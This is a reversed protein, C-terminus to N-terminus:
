AMKGQGSGFLAAFFAMVAYSIYDLIRKAFGSNAAIYSWVRIVRIGDVDETQWLRNRYGEFVEGKPFNPACTIVTVNIGRRIWQQCHEYTRTAPANV